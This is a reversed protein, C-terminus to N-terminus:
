SLLVLLIIVVITLSLLRYGPPICGLRLYFINRIKAMKSLHKKSYYALVRKPCLVRKNGFLDSFESVLELRVPGELDVLYLLEYNSM